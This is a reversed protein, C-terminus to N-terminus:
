ASYPGGHAFLCVSRIMATNAQVRQKSRMWASWFLRSAPVYGSTTVVCETRKARESMTDARQVEKCFGRMAVQQYNRGGSSVCLEILASTFEAITM